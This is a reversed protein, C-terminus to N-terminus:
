GRRTRRLGAGIQSFRQAFHALISQGRVPRFIEAGVNNRLANEPAAHENEVLRARDPVDEEVVGRIVSLGLDAAAQELRPEAAPEEGAFAVGPPAM